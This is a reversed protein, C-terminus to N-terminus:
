DLYFESLRDVVVGDKFLIARVSYDSDNASRSWRMGMNWISPGNGAQPHYRDLPEGLLTVVESESMGIVIKLFRDESFGAAYVTDGGGTVVHFITGVVGELRILQLARTFNLLAFLLAIAGLALLISRRM